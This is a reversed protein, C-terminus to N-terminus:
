FRGVLICVAVLSCNKDLLYNPNKPNASAELQTNLWNRVKSPHLFDCIFNVESFSFSFNPSLKVVLM